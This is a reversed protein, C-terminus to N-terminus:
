PLQIPINQTAGDQFILGSAEVHQDRHTITADYRGPTLALTRGDAPYEIVPETEGQRRLSIRAQAVNRGGKTVTIRVRSRRFILEATAEGEPPLEIAEGDRSPKDILQDEDRIEGHMYYTGAPLELEQGNRVSAVVEGDANRLEVEGEFPDTGLRVEIRLRGPGTPAPPAEEVEEEEEVYAESEASTEAGTTTAPAEIEEAEGGGCGVTAIFTLISVAGTGITSVSRM